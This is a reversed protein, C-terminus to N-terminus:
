ESLISLSREEVESQDFTDHAVLEVSKETKMSSELTLFNAHHRIHSVYAQLLLM